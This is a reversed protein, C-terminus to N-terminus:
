GSKGFCCQGSVSSGYHLRALYGASPRFEPNDADIAIREADREVARFIRWGPCFDPAPVATRGASRKAIQAVQRRGVSLVQKIKSGV